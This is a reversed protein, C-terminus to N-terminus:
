DNDLFISILITALILGIIAVTIIPRIFLFTIISIIITWVTAGPAKMGMFLGIGVVILCFTAWVLEAMQPTTNNLNNFLPLFLEGFLILVVIFFVGILVLGAASINFDDFKIMEKLTEEVSM